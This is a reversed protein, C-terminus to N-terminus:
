VVSNTIGAATFVGVMAVMNAESSQADYYLQSQELLEILTLREKKETQLNNIYSQIQKCAAALEDAYEVSQQHDTCLLCLLV